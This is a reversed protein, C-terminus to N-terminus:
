DKGEPHINPNCLEGSLNELENAIKELGYLDAELHEKQELLIFYKEGKAIEEEIEDLEEEKLPVSYFIEGLEKLIQLDIESRYLKEKLEQFSFLQM